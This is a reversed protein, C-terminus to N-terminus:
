DTPVPSDTPATLGAVTAPASVQSRTVEGGLIAIVAVVIGVIAAQQGTDIQIGFAVLLALLALVGNVIRAPERSWLSILAQM